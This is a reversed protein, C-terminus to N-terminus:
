VKRTRRRVSKGRRLRVFKGDAVKTDRIAVTEGDVDIGIIHARGKKSREFGPALWHNKGIKRLRKGAKETTEETFFTAHVAAILVGADAGAQRAGESDGAKLGNRIAVLMSNVIESVGPPLGDNGDGLVAALTRGESFMAMLDDFRRVSAPRGPEVATRRVGLASAGLFRRNASISDSPGTVSGPTVVRGLDGVVTGIFSSLFEDFAALNGPTLGILLPVAEAMPVFASLPKGEISQILQSLLDRVRNPDARSVRETGMPGDLTTHRSPDVAVGPSDGRSLISPWNSRIDNRRRLGYLDIDM